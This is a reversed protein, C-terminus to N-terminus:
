VQHGVHPASRISTAHSLNPVSSGAVLAAAACAEAADLFRLFAADSAPNVDAQGDFLLKAQPAPRYSALRELHERDPVIWFNWRVAYEWWGRARDLDTWSARFDLVSGLTTFFVCRVGSADAAAAVIQRGGSISSTTHNAHLLCSFRNQWSAPRAIVRDVFLSKGRM